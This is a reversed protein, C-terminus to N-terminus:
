ILFHFLTSISKSIFTKKLYIFLMILLLIVSLFDFFRQFHFFFFFFFFFDKLIFFFFFFFFFFFALFFFPKCCSLYFIKLLFVQFGIKTSYVLPFWRLSETGIEFVTESTDQTKM